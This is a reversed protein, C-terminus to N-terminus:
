YRGLRWLPIELVGVIQLRRITSLYGKISSHCLGEDALYAVFLCLQNEELPLPVLSGKKCFTLYRRQGSEYAWKTSPAISSNVFQRVLTELHPFDVTGTDGVWRGSGRPNRNGRQPGQSTSGSGADPNVQSSSEGPKGKGLAPVAGTLKAMLKEVLRDEMEALETGSVSQPTAQTEEADSM